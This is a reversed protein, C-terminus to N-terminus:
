VFITFTFSISSFSLILELARELLSIYAYFRELVAHYKSEVRKESSQYYYFGGTTRLHCDFFGVQGSSLLCVSNPMVM